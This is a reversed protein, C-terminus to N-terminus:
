MVNMFFVTIRKKFVHHIKMKLFVHWARLFMVLNGTRSWNHFVLSIFRIVDGVVLHEREWYKLSAVRRTFNEVTVRM